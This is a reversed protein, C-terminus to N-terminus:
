YAFRAVLLDLSAALEALEDTARQAHAVQTTTQEAAEAVSAITGAIERAGVAAEAVNRSTETNTALQQEVAAAITAQHEDIRAVVTSIQEISRVAAETDQQIEAVRRGVDETARATELALEKVETAVVAFGKGAEGARAAEITANLALLNTQSAIGAILHLVGGIERSAEGLRIVDANTTAATHVAQSAVASAEAASRSIERIVTSMEDSGQAVSEVNGSVQGAASAVVGAQASAEVAAASISVSSQALEQASASLTSVSAALTSVTEQVRGAFTNFSRAISGLEDDGDVALRATLDAREDEALSQLRRRLAALPGRVSAAIGIGLAISLAGGVLGAVIMMRRGSAAEARASEAADAGAAQVARDVAAIADSLRTFNDIEEGIVLENARREAAPDGAAYDALITTDVAMFDDYAGQATAIEDAVGAPVRDDDALVRLGAELQQASQLFATRSAGEDTAATPEGRLVDFAYATQWGNWDASQFRVAAAEGAVALYGQVDTSADQQRSFGEVGLAVVALLAVPGVLALAVLRAAISTRRGLGRLSWRNRPAPMSTSTGPTGTM